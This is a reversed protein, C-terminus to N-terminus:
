KVKLKEIATLSDNSILDDVINLEFTSIIEIVLQLSENDIIRKNSKDDHVDIDILTFILRCLTGVVGSNQINIDTVFAKLENKSDDTPNIENPSRTFLTM